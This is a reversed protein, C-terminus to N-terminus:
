VEGIYRSVDLSLGNGEFWSRVNAKKSYVFLVELFVEDILLGDELFVNFLINLKKNSEAILGFAYSTFQQAVVIAIDNLSM